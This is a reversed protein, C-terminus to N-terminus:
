MIIIFIFNLKYDLLNGTDLLQAIPNVTTGSTSSNSSWITTGGSNVLSLIGQSDLKVMGSSDTLPTERNAVWVVTHPSTNKFWIGLYRYKSSGPSFFGLEFKANRSVVTEGDLLNQHVTITELSSGSSRLMLFFFTISPLLIKIQNM